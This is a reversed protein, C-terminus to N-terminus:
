IMYIFKFWIMYILQLGRLARIRGDLDLCYSVPWNIKKDNASWDM